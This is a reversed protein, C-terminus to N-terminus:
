KIIPLPMYFLRARNNYIINIVNAYIKENMSQDTMMDM